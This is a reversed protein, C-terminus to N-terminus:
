ERKDKNALDHGHQITVVLLGNSLLLYAPYIWAAFEYSPLSILTLTTAIVGLAFTIVTEEEPHFWSHRITPMTGILDIVITAVVAIMPSDFILWLILGVIAGIFCGADFADLKAKGHKLGFLVVAFTAIGDGLLLLAAPVQNEAFLAAAGIGILVSWVFWTVINPKTKGKVIDVIYPITSLLMIIAAVVSLVDKM